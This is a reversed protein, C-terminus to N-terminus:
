AKQTSFLTAASVCSRWIGFGFFARTDRRKQEIPDSVVTYLVGKNHPWRMIIGHAFHLAGSRMDLKRLASCTAASVCSRWIGFSFFARTDRRKQEIPDSVM